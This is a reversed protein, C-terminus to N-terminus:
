WKVVDDLASVSAAVHRFVYVRGRNPHIGDRAAEAVYQERPAHGEDCRHVDAQELWFGGPDVAALRGLYVMPGGTDVVVQRGILQEPGDAM